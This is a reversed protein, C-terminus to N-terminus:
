LCKIQWMEVQQIIPLNFDRILYISNYNSKKSTSVLTATYHVLFTRIQINHKAQITYQNACRCLICITEPEVVLGPLLTKM